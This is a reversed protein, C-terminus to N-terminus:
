TINLFLNKVHLVHDQADKIEKLGIAEEYISMVEFLKTKSKDLISSVKPENTLGTSSHTWKAGLPRNLKFIQGLKRKM